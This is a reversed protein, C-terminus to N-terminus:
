KDDKDVSPPKGSTWKARAIVIRVVIISGLAPEASRSVKRLLDRLEKAEDLALEHSQSSHTFRCTSAKNQLVLRFLHILGIFPVSTRPREGNNLLLLQLKAAGHARDDRLLYLNQLYRNLRSHRIRVTTNSTFLSTFEPHVQKWTQAPPVCSHRSFVPWNPM